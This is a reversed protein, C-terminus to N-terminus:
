YIALHNYTLAEESWIMLAAKQLGFTSTGSTGKVWSFRIVIVVATNFLETLLPQTLYKIASVVKVKIERCGKAAVTM